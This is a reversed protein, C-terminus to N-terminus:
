GCLDFGALLAGGDCADLTLGTVNRGPRRLLVQNQAPQRFIFFSTQSTRVIANATATLFERSALRAGRRAGPLCLPVAAEDLLRPTMSAEYKFL